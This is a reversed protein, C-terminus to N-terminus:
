PGLGSGVEVGLQRLLEDIQYLFPFHPLPYAGWWILGEFIAPGGLRAWLTLAPM